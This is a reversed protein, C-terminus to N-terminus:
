WGAPDFLPFPLPPAAPAADVEVSIDEVKLDGCVRMIEWVSDVGGRLLTIHTADVPLESRTPDLPVWGNEEGLWSEAWTHLYFGDVVYVLGTCLRTPIGLSRAMGAYLAAYDRCVGRGAVLIEASTRASDFAGGFTLKRDVWACMRQAARCADSADGAAEKAAAVVTPDDSVINADPQAYVSLEEPVAYGLEPGKHDRIDDAVVRVSLAGDGESAAEQRGLITPLGDPMDLGRIRAKLTRISSPRPLPREVKAGVGFEMPPMYDGSGLNRADEESEAVLQVGLMGTGSVLKGDGDLRMKFQGISSAGSVEWGQDTRVVKTTASQFADSMINYCVTEQEGETLLDLLFQLEGRLEKGEPVTATSTREGDYATRTVTATDGDFVIVKRTPVEGAPLLAEIRVPKRTKPDIWQRIEVQVETPIGVEQLRLRVDLSMRLKGTLDGADELATALHMYGIKAQGIRISAWEDRKVYEPAQARCCPLTLAFLVCLMGYAIRRARV